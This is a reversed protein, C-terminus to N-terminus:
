VFSLALLAGSTGAAPRRERTFQSVLLALSGFVSALLAINLGFFFAAGPGLGVGTLKGGAFALLSILLGMLLLAAGIAAVKEAAIRSRSRPVSLLLDLSGREEE